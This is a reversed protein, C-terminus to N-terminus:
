ERGFKVDIRIVDMRWSLGRVAFVLAHPSTAYCIATMGCSMVHCSMPHCDEEKSVEIADVLVESLISIFLTIILMWVISGWYTLVPEEEEGEKDSGGDDEPQLSLPPFESKFEGVWTIHHDCDHHRTLTCRHLHVITM